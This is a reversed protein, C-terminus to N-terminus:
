KSLKALDLNLIKAMNRIGDYDKDEIPAFGEAKFAQLVAPDKLEIFAARIKVKLQPALTTQMTWPYEPIPQSVAIVKVKAPDIAKKEVLSEFIPKSLGGAQAKGGQVAFAVADHAGVFQEQYDTKETLGVGRLMSKPVLHSSTSAPDGFAMVKGRIDALSHIGSASNAIVVAEYTARGNRMLAAFPEIDSKSRALVYSLPGFYGLELRGHRMAEIMSSYDTTVVLEIKKGTKQELYQKLGQNHQIVVSANEDPLLAVRLVSPDAPNEAWLEGGTSVLCATLAVIFRIPTHM